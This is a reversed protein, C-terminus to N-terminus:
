PPIQRPCFRFKYLKQSRVESKQSRVESKERRGGARQWKGDGNGFNQAIEEILLFGRVGLVEGGVSLM